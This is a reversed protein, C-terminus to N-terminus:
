DATAPKIWAIKGEADISFLQDAEMPAGQLHEGNPDLLDHDTSVILTKGQWEAIGISGPYPSYGWIYTPNGTGDWKEINYLTLTPHGEEAVIIVMRSRDPSISLAYVSWGLTLSHQLPQLGYDDMFFWDDSGEGDFVCLYRPLESDPSFRECITSYTLFSLGDSLEESISTGPLLCFSIVFAFLRSPHTIPMKIIQQSNIAPDSLIACDLM